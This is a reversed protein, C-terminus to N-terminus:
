YGGSSGPAPRDKMAAVTEASGAAIFRADSGITVLDFGLAIMRKAYDPSATHIGARIGKAKCSRVIRTIADVVEPEVPDFRPPYGLSASLDSPGVYVADLGPVALIADLNTLAERTEIMAFAVVEDNARGPYETGYAVLSRIPGFSRTGRPPYRVVSLFAEAQEATNVMPCIVGMVGADLMRQVIGPENWPVRCLPTADTTAIAQLMGVVSGYDATGHQLDITLSDFGQRAMIEAGLSSPLALWGNLAAKGDAWLTRLGNAKM